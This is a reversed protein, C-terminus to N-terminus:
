IYPEINELVWAPDKMNNVAQIIADRLASITPASVIQSAPNPTNAYIQMSKWYEKCIPTRGIFDYTRKVNRRFFLVSSYKNNEKENAM